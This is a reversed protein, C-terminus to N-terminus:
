KLGDGEGACDTTCVPPLTTPEPIVEGGPTTSAEMLVSMSASPAVTMVMSAMSESVLASMWNISANLNPVISGSPRLVPASPSVVLVSSNGIVIVNNNNNNNNNQGNNTRETPSALQTMSGLM